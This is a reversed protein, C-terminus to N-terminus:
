TKPARWLWREFLSADPHEALWEQSLREQMQRSERRFVRAARVYARVGDFARRLGLRVDGLADGIIDAADGMADVHRAMAKMDDEFSM